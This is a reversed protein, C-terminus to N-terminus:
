ELPRNKEIANLREAEAKAATRTPYLCSVVGVSKDNEFKEVVWGAVRVGGMARLLIPHFEVM